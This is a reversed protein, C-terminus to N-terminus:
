EPVSVHLNLNILCYNAALTAGRSALASMTPCRLMDTVKQSRFIQPDACALAHPRQHQGQSHSPMHQHSAAEKREQLDLELLRDGGESGPSPARSHACSGRSEGPAGQLEELSQSGSSGREEQLAHPATDACISIFMIM